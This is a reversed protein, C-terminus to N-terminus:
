DARGSEHSRMGWGWAASADLPLVLLWHEIIALILLTLVLLQGIQSGNEGTPLHTGIYFASCTAVSVALPFFANMSQKRMYSALYKMHEPLWDENLNRVGFFANLKASWRMVWLVVFCWFAYRNPQDATLMLLVTGSVVVLMEHYLSTQLALYFRRLGRVDPPCETHNPGTILGTLYTIELFGWIVLGCTFACYVAATAPSQRTALVGLIALGLLISAGLLTWRYTNRPLGDLYLVIGTLSWWLILVYGIPLAVTTM